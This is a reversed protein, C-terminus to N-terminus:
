SEAAPAGTLFQCRGLEARGAAEAPGPPEAAVDRWACHALCGATGASQCAAELYARGERRGVAEAQAGPFEAFRDLRRCPVNKECVLAVCCGGDGWVGEGKAKGTKGREGDPATQM